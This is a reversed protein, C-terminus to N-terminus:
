VNRMNLFDENLNQIELTTHAQYVPTQPLTLLLSLLLGLCTILLLTGKRRRLMQGYELLSGAGPEDIMASSSSPVELYPQRTPLNAGAGKSPLNRDPGGLLHQDEM